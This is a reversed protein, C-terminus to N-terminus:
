PVICACRRDQTLTFFLEHNQTIRATRAASICSAIQAHSKPLWQQFRSPHKWRRRRCLWRPSTRTRQHSKKNWRRRMSSRAMEALMAAEEFTWSLHRWARTTISSKEEVEKRAFGEAGHSAGHHRPAHWAGCRGPVPVECFFHMPHEQHHAWPAAPNLHGCTAAGSHLWGSHMARPVGSSCYPDMGASFGQSPCLCLGVAAGSALVRTIAGLRWAMRGAGPVHERHVLPGRQLQLFDERARAPGTGINEHRRGCHTQGHHHRDHARGDLDHSKTQGRRRHGNHKPRARPGFPERGDRGHQHHLFPAIQVGDRLADLADSNAWTCCSPNRRKRTGEQHPAISWVRVASSTSPGGYASDAHLTMSSPWETSSPSCWVRPSRSAQRVLVSASRECFPISCMALMERNTGKRRTRRWGDDCRGRWCRLDSSMRCGHRWTTRSRACCHTISWRAQPISAEIDCAGSSCCGRCWGASCGKWRLAVHGPSVVRAAEGAALDGFTERAHGGPWVLDTHVARGCNAEGRTEEEPSTAVAGDRAQNGCHAERSCPLRGRRAARAVSDGASGCSSHLVAGHSLSFLQPKWSFVNGNLLQNLLLPQSLHPHEEGEDDYRSLFRKGCSFSSSCQRALNVLRVENLGARRASGGRADLVEEDRRMIPQDQSPLTHCFCVCHERSWSTKNSGARSPLCAQSRNSTSTARAQGWSSARPACRQSIHRSLYCLAQGHRVAQPLQCPPIHDGGDDQLLSTSRDGDSVMNMLCAQKWGIKCECCVHSGKHSEYNSRGNTQAQRSSRVVKVNLASCPFWMTDVGNSVMTFLVRRMVGFKLSCPFRMTDVGDGVHRGVWQCEMVNRVNGLGRKERGQEM